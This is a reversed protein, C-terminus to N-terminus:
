CSYIFKQFLRYYIGFDDEEYEDINVGNEDQKFDATRKRRIGIDDDELTAANFRTGTSKRKSELKRRARIKEMELKEAAQQRKEPDEAVLHQKTKNYKKHKNAIAM